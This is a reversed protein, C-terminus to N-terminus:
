QGKENVDSYPPIDGGKQAPGGGLFDIFSSKYLQCSIFM